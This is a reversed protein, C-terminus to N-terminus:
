SLPDAHILSAPCLLLTDLLLLSLLLMYLSAPCLLLIHLILVSLLLMYLLM